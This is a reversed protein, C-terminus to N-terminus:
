SANQKSPPLHVFIGKRKKNNTQKALHFKVARCLLYTAVQSKVQGCPRAAVSPKVHFSLHFRFNQSFFTVSNGRKFTIFLIEREFSKFNQNPFTEKALGKEFQLTKM